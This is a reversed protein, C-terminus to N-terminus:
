RETRCEAVTNGACDSISTVLEDGDVYSNITFATSVCGNKRQTITTSMGGDKTGPGGTLETKRGDISCALYFNRVAM